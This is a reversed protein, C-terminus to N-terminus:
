SRAARRTPSRPAILGAFQQLREEIGDPLPAEGSTATLMGSVENEVSVPVSVSATLGFEAALQADPERTYDDVRVFRGTRRVREPMTGEAYGIRFGM